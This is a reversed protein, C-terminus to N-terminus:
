KVLLMKKTEVFENVRLTYYYIGSTLGSADFDYKYIGPNLNANVLTAVEKGVMDYVRLSVFGLDAIGFELNTSPNFPNPYNQSLMYGDPIESSINRIGIPTSNNNYNVFKTGGFPIGNFTVSTYIIGFVRFKRGPVFWSYSTATTVIVLPSGSNSSDKTVQVDKVRLANSYSGGPLNITGWADGSVSTTGTEFIQTTGITYNASINDTFSSGYSFPYQMLVQPDTYQILIDPGQVGNVLFNGSSSTGFNFTTDDTTNAINSTPFQAAYPTSAPTVYTVIVSDQTTLGPFNWTQGPGANGPSINTTDCIAWADVNGPVPNHSSTLTTQPFANSSMLLIILIIIKM